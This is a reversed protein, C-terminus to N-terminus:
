SIYLPTADIPEFGVNPSFSAFQSTSINKPSLIMCDKRKKERESYVKCSCKNIDLFKCAVSTYIPAGKKTKNFKNLCCKGCGDCLLEWEESSLDNLPINKWFNKRM